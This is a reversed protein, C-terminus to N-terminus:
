KGRGYAKRVRAGEARNKKSIQKSQKHKRQNKDHEIAMKRRKAWVEEGKKTLRKATEPMARVM